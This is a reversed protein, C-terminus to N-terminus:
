HILKSPGTNNASSNNTNTPRKTDFNEYLTLVAVKVYETIEVFDFESQDDLEQYNEATQKSIQALDMILEQSEKSLAEMSLATKDKSQALGALFGHIWESLALARESLPADDTNPLQPQFSLSNQALVKASALYFSLLATGLAEHETPSKDILIQLDQLWLEPPLRRCLYATLFGHIESAGALADFEDLAQTLQAYSTDAQNDSM